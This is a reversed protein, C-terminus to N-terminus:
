AFIWAILLWLTLQLFGTGLCVAYRRRLQSLIPDNLCLMADYEVALWRYFDSDRRPPDDSEIVKVLGTPSMRFRWAQPKPSTIKKSAMLISLCLVVSVVTLVTATSALVYFPVTRSPTKLSTGVLFATAAGTFTLFQVSRQRMSDLESLQDDVARQGEECVFKYLEQRARM